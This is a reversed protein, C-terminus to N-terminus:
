QRPQAGQMTWVLRLLHLDDYEVEGELAEHVPALREGGLEAFQAFVRAQVAAPVKCEAALRAADVAGGNQAYERLHSIVTSRKVDYLAGLEALSRGQAFLAGVEDARRGSGVLRPAPPQIPAPGPAVGAATGAVPSAAPRAPAQLGHAAAYDAIAALFQAGYAGLKARGVGNVALLDDTTQPLYAAMEILSRDSFIVYPPLNAADALTRRLTRLHEFLGADYPPMGVGQPARGRGTPVEPAAHQEVRARQEGRLVARASDTLRLGGHEMDQELLGAQLWGGVLARWEASSHERGTNYDPLRDHRRDLVRQGRSGRLVDIIHSSGFVQGTHQVCAFFKRAAETVDTQAREHAPSTCNDCFGCEAAAREEGFYRLLPPRRCSRMQAYRVMAQLRAGRGAREEAAGEDIMKSLLVVDQAHHLLLCDARLGDRGARGIEQYYQEISAPLNYHVVFRVNPKNIGMGFAITAVAICGDENLFRRQNRARVADDLGAHYAVAPLGAEVLRATLEEVQKRTNCYIIGSEEKHDALFAIIQRAGDDRPRVTLFLNPRNFSAVFTQSHAFHLSQQIDEQVRPTATATLAVCVAQAFRQRVGVLERYEPRFDHGWESICHAEDIVLATVQSQDLLLLTEPRLLTEPALYLLKIEGARVRHMAAVYNPYDLTSNLFIAPAGMERLGDVQDQMLAILPSIVVTLGDFVLAPLQYCLSKGGGTPMIVLTDRRQLINAVIEEQLPWFSDYGFVSKLLHRAASSTRLSVFSPLAQGKVENLAPESHFSPDSSAPAAPAPMTAPVVSASAGAAPLFWGSLQVYCRLEDDPRDAPRWWHALSVRLLAGAPIVEVPEQFGVFTLTCGGGATPYRYRIRKADGDRQLPRDPQWFMTSYPPLGKSAAIYLPGGPAAQALGEYLVEPGGSKPPMHATIHAIPDAEAGVKRKQHVVTNEVHPPIIRAPQSAEVEWWEGVQYELGAHENHGADFAELRLSRGDEAIGGVCAGAGRRTKAVILVNTKM